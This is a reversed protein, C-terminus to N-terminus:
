RTFREVGEQGLTKGVCTPFKGFHRKVHVKAYLVINM